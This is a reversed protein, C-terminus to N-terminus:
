GYYKRWSELFHEQNQDVILVAKVVDKNSMGKRLLVSPATEEDGIAIKVQGGAKFVHVHPPDHDNTYIRFEFGDQRYVTPM